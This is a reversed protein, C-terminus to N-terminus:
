RLTTLPGLSRAQEKRQAAAAADQQQTQDSSGPLDLCFCVQVQKLGADKEDQTVINLRGGLRYQERSETFYWCVESWPNKEVHHLKPSRRATCPKCSPSHPELAADPDISCFGICFRQAVALIATDSRRDTTFTLMCSDKAFGRYM